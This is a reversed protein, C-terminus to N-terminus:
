TGPQATPSHPPSHDIIASSKRIEHPLPKGVYDIIGDLQDECQDPARLIVGYYEVYDFDLRVNHNKCLQRMEDIFVSM